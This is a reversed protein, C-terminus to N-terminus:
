QGASQAKSDLELAWADLNQDGELVTIWTIFARLMIGTSLTVASREVKGQRRRAQTSAYWLHNDLLGATSLWRTSRYFRRVFLVTDYPLFEVLAWVCSEINDRCVGMSSGCLHSARRFNGETTSYLRSFRMYHVSPRRMVGFVISLM